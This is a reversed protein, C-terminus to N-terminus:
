ELGETNQRFHTTRAAPPQKEAEEGEHGGVSVPMQEANVAATHLWLLEYRPTPERFSDHPDDRLSM